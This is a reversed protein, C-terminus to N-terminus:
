ACWSCWDNNPTTHPLPTPCALGTHKRFTNHSPQVGGGQAGKVPLHSVDRIHSAPTSLFVQGVFAMLLLWPEEQAVRGPHSQTSHM